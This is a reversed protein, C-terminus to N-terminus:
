YYGPIIQTHNPHHKKLLSDKILLELYPFHVTDQHNALLIKFNQCVLNEGKLQTANLYETLIFYAM